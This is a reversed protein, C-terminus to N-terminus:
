AAEKEEIKKHMMININPKAFEGFCFLAMENYAIAAKDESDYYGIHKQKGNYFINAVYQLNEKKLSVGKYNSKGTKKKISNRCNESQTCNRLNIKRNDLTDGNIHDVVLDDPTDMIFRHLRLSTIKGNHFRRAHIYFKKLKKHYFCFWNYKKIKDYDSGDILFKIEGYKESSITLEM